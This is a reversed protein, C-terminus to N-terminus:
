CSHEKNLAPSYSNCEKRKRGARKEPLISEVDVQEDNYRILDRTFAVFACRMPLYRYAGSVAQMYLEDNLSSFAKEFFALEHDTM